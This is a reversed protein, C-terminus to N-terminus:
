KSQELFIADKIREKIEDFFEMYKPIQHWENYKNKVMFNGKKDEKTEIIENFSWKMRKQSTKIFLADHDFILLYASQKSRIIFLIFLSIAAGLIIFISFFLIPKDAIFSLLMEVPVFYALMIAISLCILAISIGAVLIKFSAQNIAQPRLRYENQAYFKRVLSANARKNSDYVSQTKQVFEYAFKLYQENTEALPNEKAFKALDALSLMEKISNFIEEPLELTELGKLIQPTTQELAKLGFRKELYTRIIDSISDYYAKVNGKQWLQRAESDKLATLAIVHPPENGKERDFLAEKRIFRVYIWYFMVVLGLLIFSIFLYSFIEEKSLPIQVITKIPTVDKTSDINPSSVQISIPQTAFSDGIGQSFKLAPFIQASDEFCTVIYKLQIISQSGSYLSDTKLKEVVRFNGLHDDDIKPMILSSNQPAKIKIELEMHDGIMIQTPSLTASAEQGYSYQLSAALFFLCLLKKTIRMYFTKLIKSHLLVHM